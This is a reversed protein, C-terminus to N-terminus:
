QKSKKNTKWEKIATGLNKLVQEYRGDSKQRFTVQIKGGNEFFKYPFIYATKDGDKEALDFGIRYKKMHDAIEQIQHYSLPRRHFRRYNQEPLKAWDIMKFDEKQEGVTHWNLLRKLHETKWTIIQKYHDQHVYKALEFYIEMRSMEKTEM